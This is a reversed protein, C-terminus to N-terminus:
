DGQATPRQDRLRVAHRQIKDVAAVVQDMDSRAGLLVNQPLWVAEEACARATVACGTSELGRLYDQLRHPGLFERFRRLRLTAPIFQERYLPVYGKACPIGEAALAEVFVDRPLDAFARRDYRFVFLHRGHATVGSPRALPRVGALEGLERSLYVANGERRAQLAPFRDLGALLLAAQLETMRLNTGPYPHHYWTGARLRGCTHFYYCRDVFEPDDSVIAGGEGGSLNKSIQFSFCGARGLPGVPRGRWAAGHAQCADEVVLLGHREAVSNIRDMDCPLGAFHVPIVAKTHPTIHDELLEPDLCYTDPHIDVFVPLADVLLVSSATAMFTYAPVLVEDGPGVGAVTLATTLATSGSTVTLAREAGCLAAFRREFEDVLRGDHREWRGSELAALLNSREERGVQPWSPFPEERVPKGGLLAPRDAGQSSM